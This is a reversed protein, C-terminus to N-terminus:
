HNETITIITLLGNTDYEGEVKYFKGTEVRTPDYNNNIKVKKTTDGENDAKKNITKVLQILTNVQSGSVSEGVYPSIKSNFSAIQQKDLSSENKVSNSMNRFVMIGLSIIIIAILISGAMILAKSANEM